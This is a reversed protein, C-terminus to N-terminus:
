IMVEEYCLEFHALRLYISVSLLQVDTKLWRIRSVSSRDSTFQQDFNLVLFDNQLLPVNLYPFLSVQLQPGIYIIKSHTNSNSNFPCLGSSFHVM